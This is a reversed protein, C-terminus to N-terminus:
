GLLPALSAGIAGYIPFPLRDTMLTFASRVGEITDQKDSLWVAHDIIDGTFVALTADCAVENVFDLM